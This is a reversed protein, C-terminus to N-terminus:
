HRAQMLYELYADIGDKEIIDWEAPLFRIDIRERGSYSDIMYDLYDPIESLSVNSTVRMLNIKNARCWLSKIADRRRGNIFNMRNQEASSTFNAERFHQDGDYEIILGHQPLYFDFRLTRKDKCDHDSWESIYEYKEEILFREIAAAHKSQTSSCIKCGRRMGEAIHQYAIVPQLGHEPCKIMITCDYGTYEVESYDYRDGHLERAREIFSQTTHGSSRRHAERAEEACIDCGQGAKHKVPAQKFPHNHKKCWIVVKVKGGDYNVDRYDYRDGHVARFEEIIEETTKKRSM